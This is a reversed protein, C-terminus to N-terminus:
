MHCLLRFNSEFIAADHQKIQEFLICGVRNGVKLLQCFFPEVVTQYKVTYDWTEYGLAATWITCAGTTRSIGDVAFDVRVLMLASRESHSMGTLVCASALEIDAVSWLRM